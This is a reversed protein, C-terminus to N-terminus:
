IEGSTKKKNLAKYHTQFKNALLQIKYDPGKLGKRAFSREAMYRAVEKYRVKDIAVGRETAIQRRLQQTVEWQMQYTEKPYKQPRGRNRPPLRYYPDVPEGKLKAELADYSGSNILGGCPRKFHLEIAQWLEKKTWKSASKQLLQPLVKEFLRRLERKTYTQRDRESGVSQRTPSKGHPDM